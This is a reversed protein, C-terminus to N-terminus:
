RFNTVIPALNLRFAEGGCMAHVQPNGQWGCGMLMEYTAPTAQMITISYSDIIQSLRRPDRQLQSSLLLLKAGCILPMFIELVSIDFCFTTLGLMTNQKTLSLDNAFWTLTNMVSRHEILVGKPKGTSGSTYLVYALLADNHLPSSSSSSSLVQPRQRGRKDHPVEMVVLRGMTDLYVMRVGHPLHLTTPIDDSTEADSIVVSVQSDELM